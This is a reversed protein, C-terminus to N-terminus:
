SFPVMTPLNVTIDETITETLGAFDGPVPLAIVSETRHTYAVSSGTASNSLAAPTLSIHVAFGVLDGHGDYFWIERRDVTASDLLSFASDRSGCVV